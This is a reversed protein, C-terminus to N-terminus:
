RIAEVAKIEPLLDVSLKFFSVVGFMALAVMFMTIAVPRRTVLVELLPRWGEIVSVWGAVFVLPETSMGRNSANTAAAM